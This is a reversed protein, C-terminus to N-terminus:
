YITLLRHGDCGGGGKPIRQSPDKHSKKKCPQVLEIESRTEYLLLTRSSTGISDEIVVPYRISMGSKVVLFSVPAIVAPKKFLLHLHLLPLLLLLTFGYSFPPQHRAATHSFAASERRSLVSSLMFEPRIALCVARSM